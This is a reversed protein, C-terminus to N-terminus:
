TLARFAFSDSVKGRKGIENRTRPSIKGKTNKKMNAPL